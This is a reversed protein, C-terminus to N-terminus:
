ASRAVSPSSPAPVRLAPLHGHDPAVEQEPAGSDRELRRCVCSLLLAPGSLEFLEEVLVTYRDLPIGRWAIDAARLPGEAVEIALATGLLAFALWVIRRVLRDDSFTRLFHVAIVVGALAFLPGYFIVWNYALVDPSYKDVLWGMREHLMISDDLSVYIFFVGAWFWTRPCPEGRRLSQRRAGLCAIGLLFEVQVSIWTLGSSEDTVDFLDRLQRPIARRGSWSLDSMAYGAAIIVVAAGLAILVLKSLPLVRRRAPRTVAKEASELASEVPVQERRSAGSRQETPFGMDPSRTAPLPTLEPSQSAM